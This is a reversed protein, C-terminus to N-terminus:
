CAKEQTSEKFEGFNTGDRMMAFCIRANKHALAVIAKNTGARKEVRDAWTRIKNKGDSASTPAYRMVTRAGHILYRRLLEPGCKTIHGFRNRSGSANQKPTLGLYSGLHKADPFRSFDDISAVFAVASLLGIGPVQLLRSTREDECVLNGLEKEILGAEIKLTEAQRVLEQLVRKISECEVENIREPVDEWFNTIGAPIVFGYERLISRVHCILSTRTRVVIDRSALLSKLRRSYLTKKHVEPVYSVRLATALAKADNKDNKKGGLGIGRFQVSNIIRVKHGTNELKNAIDFVGGSSEVGIEYERKNSLYKTLQDSKLRTEEKIKGDQDM